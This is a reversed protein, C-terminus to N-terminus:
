FYFGGRGSVASQDNKISKNQTFSQSFDVMTFQEVARASLVVLM